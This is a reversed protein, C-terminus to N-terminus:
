GMRPPEYHLRKRGRNAHQWDSDTSKNAVDERGSVPPEDTTTHAENPDVFCLVIMDTATDAPHGLGSLPPENTTTRTENPKVRVMALGAAV